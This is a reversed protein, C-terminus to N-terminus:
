DVRREVSLPFYPTLNLIKLLSHIMFLFRINTNMITPHIINHKADGTDATVPSTSFDNEEGPEHGV